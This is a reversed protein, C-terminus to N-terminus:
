IRTRYNDREMVVPANSLGLRRRDYRVIVNANCLVMMSVIVGVYVDKQREVM